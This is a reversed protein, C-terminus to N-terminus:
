LFNTLNFTLEFKWFIAEFPEAYLKTFGSITQSIFNNSKWPSLDLSSGILCKLYSYEFLDKFAVPLDLDTDINFLLTILILNSLFAFKSSHPISWIIFTLPIGLLSNLSTFLLSRGLLLIIM